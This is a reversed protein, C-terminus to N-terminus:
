TMRVQRLTWSSQVYDTLPNSAYLCSHSKSWSQTGERHRSVGLWSHCAWRQESGRQKGSCLCLQTGLIVSDESLGLPRPLASAQSQHAGSERSLQLAM